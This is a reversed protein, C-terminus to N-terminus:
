LNPNAPQVVGLADLIDGTVALLAYEARREQAELRIVRVQATNLERLADLIQLFTGRGLDFQGRAADLAEDNIKVARRASALRAAISTTEELAQDLSRQIERRLEEEIAKSQALSAKATEINANVLGGQYIPIDVGLRAQAGDDISGQDFDTELIAAVTPRISRETM